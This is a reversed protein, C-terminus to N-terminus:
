HDGSATESGYKRCVHEAITPVVSEDDDGIIFYGTAGARMARKRIHREGRATRIYIMAEKYRNGYTGRRCRELLALGTRSDSVSEEEALSKPAKAMIDLIVVDYQTQIMKSEFDAVTKATDVTADYCDLAELLDARFLRNESAQPYDDFFLVSLM